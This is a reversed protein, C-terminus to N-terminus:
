HREPNTREYGAKAREQNQNTLVAFYHHLPITQMKVPRTAPRAASSEFVAGTLLLGEQAQCTPTWAITAAQLERPCSPCKSAITFALVEEAPREKPQQPSRRTFPGQRLLPTAVLLFQLLTAPM